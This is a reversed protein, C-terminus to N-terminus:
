QEEKALFVASTKIHDHFYITATDEDLMYMLDEVIGIFANSWADKVSTSKLTNKDYTFDSLYTVFHFGHRTKSLSSYAPMVTVPVYVGDRDGHEILWNRMDACGDIDRSPVSRFSSPPAQMTVEAWAITVTATSMKIGM